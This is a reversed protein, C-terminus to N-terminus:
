SSLSVVKAAIFIPKFECSQRNVKLDYMSGSFPLRLVM